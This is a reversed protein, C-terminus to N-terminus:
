SVSGATWPTSAPLLENLKRAQRQQNAIVATVAQMFEKVALIKPSSAPTGGPLTAHGAFIASFEAQKGEIRDLRDRIERLLVLTHNEVNEDSMTEGYSTLFSFCLSSSPKAFRFHPVALCPLNISSVM